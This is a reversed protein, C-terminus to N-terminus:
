STIRHPAPSTDDRRPDAPFDPFKQSLDLTFNGVPSAPPLVWLKKPPPAILPVRALLYSDDALAHGNCNTPKSLPLPCGSAHVLVVPNLLLSPISGEM